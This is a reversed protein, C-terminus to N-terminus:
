KEKSYPVKSLGGHKRVLVLLLVDLTNKYQRTAMNGPVCVFYFELELRIM